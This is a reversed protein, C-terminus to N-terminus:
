LYLIYQMFHQDGIIHLASARKHTEPLCKDGGILLMRPGWPLFIVFFHIILIRMIATIKNKFYPIVFNAWLFWKINCQNLFKFYVKIVLHYTVTNPLLKSHAWNPYLQSLFWPIKWSKGDQAWVLWGKHKLQCIMKNTDLNFLIVLEKQWCSIRLYTYKALKKQKPM